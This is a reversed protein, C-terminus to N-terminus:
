LDRSSFSNAKDNHKDMNYFSCCISVFLFLNSCKILSIQWKQDSATINNSPFFVKEFNAASSSKSAPTM